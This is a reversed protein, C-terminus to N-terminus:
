PLVAFHQQLNSPLVPQCSQHTSNAYVQFNYVTFVFRHVDGGPLSIQPLHHDGVIAVFIVVQHHREGNLKKTIYLESLSLWPM